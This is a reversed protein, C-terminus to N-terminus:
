LLADLYDLFPDLPLCYGFVYSRLRKLLPVERAPCPSACYFPRWDAGTLRALALVWHSAYNQPTIEVIRAGAPAFLANALAAGTPAVIVEAERVLAIQAAPTLDEPRVIRFGRARLQTELAAENVMVRMPQARRSFYVRSAGQGAPATALIRERLQLALDNPMGLFHDMSTAFAVSNARVVPAAIERVALGPFGYDLLARSWPALPASIPTHDALLGAEELALLSCLGDLLFHGYNFNGGWPQFAAVGELQPADLPPEFKLGAPVAHFGPLGSLDPWKGRAGNVTAAFARGGADIV